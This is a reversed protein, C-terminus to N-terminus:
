FGIRLVGVVFGIVFVFLIGFLSGKFCVSAKGKTERKFSYNTWLMIGVFFFLISLVFIVINDKIKNSDKKIPREAKSTLGKKDPSKGKASSQKKSLASM